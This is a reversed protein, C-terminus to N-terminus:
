YLSAIVALGGNGAAAGGGSSAKRRKKKPKTAASGNEKRSCGRAVEASRAKPSEGGGGGADADGGGFGGGGGSELMGGEDRVACDGNVMVAEAMRVGGGERGSGALRPRKRTGTKCAIREQTPSGRSRFAGEGSVHSRRRKAARGGGDGGGGPEELLRMGRTKLGLKAAKVLVAKRRAQEGTEKGSGFISESTIAAMKAKEGARFSKHRSRYKVGRAAVADAPSPTALRIRLGKAQFPQAFCLVPLSM